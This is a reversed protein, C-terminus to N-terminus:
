EAFARSGMTGIVNPDLKLANLTSESLQGTVVLGSAKQFNILATSTLPGVVGDIPGPNYGLYKLQQQVEKIVMPQNVVMFVPITAAPDAPVEVIEFEPTQEVTTTTIGDEMWEDTPEHACGILLFLSLSMLLIKM